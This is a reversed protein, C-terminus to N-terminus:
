VRDLLYNVILPLEISGTPLDALKKAAEIIEPPHVCRIRRGLLRALRIHLPERPPRRSTAEHVFAIAQEATNPKHAVPGYLEYRVLYRGQNSFVHVQRRVTEDTEINTIQIDM